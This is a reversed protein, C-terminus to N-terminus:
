PKPYAYYDDPSIRKVIYNHKELFDRAENLKINLLDRRYSNEEYFINGIQKNKLLNEAGYLVWTDAGETDIKLVKIATINNLAAIHDLTDVEVEVVGKKDQLTLGGWGTQDDEKALDFKLIGKEKGMATQSPFIKDSLNNKAINHKFPGINLPSAEFAFVKNGAHQSAWLCSFYGYNAGVDVMIGGEKALKLLQRTLPLDYFGNVIVARHGVDDRMLDLSIKKNFELPVNKESVGNLNGAFKANFKERLWLPRIWQNVM